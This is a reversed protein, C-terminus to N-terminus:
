IYVKEGQQMRLWVLPYETMITERSFVSCYQLKRDIFFAKSLQKKSMEPRNDDVWQMRGTKGCEPCKESGHPLLMVNDCFTCHVWDGNDIHIYTRTEPEEELVVHTYIDVPYQFELMQSLIDKAQEPNRQNMYMYEKHLASNQPTQSMNFNYRLVLKQAKMYLRHDKHNAFIRGIQKNLDAKSKTKIGVAEASIELLSYNDINDFFLTSDAIIDTYDRKSVDTRYIHIWAKLHNTKLFNIYKKKRNQAASFDQVLSDAGGKDFELSVVFLTKMIITKKRGPHAM